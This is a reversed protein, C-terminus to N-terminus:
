RRGAEAQCSELATRLASKEAPTVSLRYKTKVRVQATAYWCHAEVRPPMWAAADKAGKGANTPGDTAILNEPDNAYNLRQEASLERAGSQWGLALPVIHDIQVATSTRPGRKFDITRGTYRDHLVGSLVTCGDEARVVDELDRALVDQRTPCSNRSMEVTGADSWAPGFADRSYGTLPTQARVSLANLQSLAAGGGAAAPAHAPAADATSGPVTLPGCASAAVAGALVLGAALLRPAM